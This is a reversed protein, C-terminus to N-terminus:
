TCRLTGHKNQLGPSPKPLSAVPRTQCAQPGDACLHATALGLPSPQPEAPPPTLLVSNTLTDLHCFARTRSYTSCSPFAAAVSARHVSTGLRGSGLVSARPAARRTPATRVPGRPFLSPRKSNSSTRPISSRRRPCRRQTCGKNKEKLFPPSHPLSSSPAAWPDRAAGLPFAPSLGTPTKVDSHSDGPGLWPAEHGPVPTTVTTSPPASALPLLALGGKGVSNQTDGSPSVPVPMLVADPPGGNAGGNGSECGSRPASLLGAGLHGLLLHLIEPPVPSLDRDCCPSM